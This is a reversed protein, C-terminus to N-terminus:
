TPYNYICDRQNEGIVKGLMGNLVRHWREILGNTRPEYATTKVKDVGMMSCLDQFLKSEFNPGQDSIIQMPVGFRTFVQNVLVEAVTTAEQNRLPFAEAWRSFYDIATLIYKHGASSQPHPGTLDIGWREMPEGVRFDALKGQRPTPGRHYTACAECQKCFREVEATHGKWYARGQVKTLTKRFGVHGGGFGRHCAEMLGKWRNRPLVVQLRDKTEVPGEWKRHLVGDRLFLNDWQQVSAKTDANYGTIESKLPQDVGDRKM